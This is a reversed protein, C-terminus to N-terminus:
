MSCTNEDKVEKWRYEPYHLAIDEYLKPSNSWSYWGIQIGLANFSPWFDGKVREGTEVNVLKM